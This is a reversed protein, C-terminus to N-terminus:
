FPLWCCSCMFLMFLLAALGLEGGSCARLLFMVELFSGVALLLFGPQSGCDTCRVVACCSSFGAVAMGHCHRAWLPGCSFWCPCLM